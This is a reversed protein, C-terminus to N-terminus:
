AAQEVRERYQQHLRERLDDGWDAAGLNQVLTTIPLITLVIGHGESGFGNVTVKTGGHYDTEFAIIHEVNVYLSQIPRGKYDVRPLEIFTQM